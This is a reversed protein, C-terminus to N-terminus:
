PRFTFGLSLASISGLGEHRQGNYNDFTFDQKVLFFSSFDLQISCRGNIHFQPTLGVIIHGMDDNGKIAPDDNFYEPNAELANEKFSRNNFSTYGLGGHLALRVRGFKSRDFWNIVNTLAELSFSMAGGNAEPQSNIGPTFTFRHYDMRGKLGFRESFYHGIGGNINLGAGLNVMDTTAGMLRTGVNGEYFWYINYWSTELAGHPSIKEKRYEPKVLQANSHESIMIVLLLALLGVLHTNGKRM